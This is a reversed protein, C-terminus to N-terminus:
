KMNSVATTLINTGFLHDILALLTLIVVFAISAIILITSIWFAPKKFGSIATFISNISNIVFRIISVVLFPIMLLVVTIIMPVLGYAAEIGLLDFIPKCGMYFAQNRINKTEIKKAEEAIAARKGEDKLDKVLQKGLEVQYTTSFEEDYQLDSAGKMYTLDKALEKLDAGEKVKGALAEQLVNGIQEPRTIPLDEQSVPPHQIDKEQQQSIVGEVKSIQEKKEEKLQGHKKLAEIEDLVGVSVGRM